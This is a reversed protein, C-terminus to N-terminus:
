YIYKKLTDRVAGKGKVMSIFYKCVLSALGVDFLNVGFIKSDSLM